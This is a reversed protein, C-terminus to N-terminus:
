RPAGGSSRRPHRRAPFNGEADSLQNFGYPAILPALVAMLVFMACLLLGAILMGRQLGVSRRLQWVVPLRKWRPEREAAEGHAVPDAGSEAGSAPPIDHTPVSM